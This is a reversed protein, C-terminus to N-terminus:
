VVLNNIQYYLNDITVSAGIGTVTKGTGYDRVLLINGTFDASDTIVAYQLDGWPTTTPNGAATTWSKNALTARVGGANSPTSVTWDSPALIHMQYGTGNQEHTSLASLPTSEDISGASSRFLRLYLTTLPTDRRFYANLIATRLELSVVNAM